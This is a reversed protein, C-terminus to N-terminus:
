TIKKTTPHSSSCFIVAEREFRKDDHALSKITTNQFHHKGREGVFEYVFCGERNVDCPNMYDVNNSERLANMKVETTM